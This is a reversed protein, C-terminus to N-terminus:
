DPCIPALSVEADTASACAWLFVTSILMAIGRQQAIGHEAVSQQPPALAIYGSPLMDGPKAIGSDSRAM